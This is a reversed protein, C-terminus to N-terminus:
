LINLLLPFTTKNKGTVLLNVCFFTLTKKIHWMGNHQESLRSLLTMLIVLKTLCTLEKTCIRSGKEAMLGDAVWM